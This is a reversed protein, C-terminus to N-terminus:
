RRPAIRLVRDKFEAPAGGCSCQAYRLEYTHPGPPRSLLIAAPAGASTCGIVGPVPPSAFLVFNGPGGGSADILASDEGCIEPEAIGDVEAGDEFLGVAGGEEDDIAVQAWVEILGSPPVTLQVSPGGLAEFEGTPSATSVLAPAEASVVKGGGGAQAALEEVQARLADVRANVARVDGQAAALQSRNEEGLATAANAHARAEEAHDGASSAENRALRAARRAQRSLGLARKARALAGASARRDFSPAVSDDGLAPVAAAVLAVLALAAVALSLLRRNM